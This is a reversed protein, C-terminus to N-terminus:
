TKPIGPKPQEILGCKECEHHLGRTASNPLWTITAMVFSHAGMPCMPRAACHPCVMEGGSLKWGISAQAEMVSHRVTVNYRRRCRPCGLMQTGPRVAPPTASSFVPSM